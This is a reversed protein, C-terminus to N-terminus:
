KKEECGVYKCELKKAVREIVDAGKQINEPSALQLKILGIRVRWLDDVSPVCAIAGFFLIAIVYKIVFPKITKIELNFEHMLPVGLCAGFAGILMLAIVIFIAAGKANQGIAILVEIWSM